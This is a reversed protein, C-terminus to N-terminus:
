ALVLVSEWATSAARYVRARPEDGGEDARDPLRAQPAARLWGARWRWCSGQRTTTSTRTTATRCWWCRPGARGAFGGSSAVSQWMAAYYQEFYKYYYTASARQPAGPGAGPVRGRRRGWAKPDGGGRDDDADRGDPAATGAGGRRRGASGRARPSDRDRLRDPATRAASTVALGVRRGGAASPATGTAVTARLPGDLRAGHLGARLDAAAARFAQRVAEGGPALVAEAAPKKWWTPNTGASPAALLRVTRFLAVYFFAALSSMSDVEAATKEAADEGSV